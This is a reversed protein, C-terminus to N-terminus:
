KIRNNGAPEPLVNGFIDPLNELVPYTVIEEGEFGSRKIESKWEEYRKNDFGISVFFSPNFIGQRVRVPQGRTIALMIADVEDEDIAIDNGHSMFVKYKKFEQKEKTYRM